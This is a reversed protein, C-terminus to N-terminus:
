TLVRVSAYPPLRSFRVRKPRSTSSATRAATDSSKMTLRRIATSWHRVPPSPGSSMISIARLRVDDPATSRILTLPPVPAVRSAVAYKTGPSSSGSPTKLSRAARRRCATPTGTSTAPRLTSGSTASAPRSAPTSRTAMVRAMMASGSRGSFTAAPSRLRGQMLRLSPQM